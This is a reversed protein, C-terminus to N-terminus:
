NRPVPVKEYRPLRMVRGLDGWIPDDQDVTALYNLMPLVYASVKVGRRGAAAHLERHLKDTMRVNLNAVRNERV